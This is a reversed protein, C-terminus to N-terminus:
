FCPLAPEPTLIVLFAVGPLFCSFLDLYRTFLERREKKKSLDTNHHQPTTRQQSLSQQLPLLVLKLFLILCHLSSFLLLYAHSCCV